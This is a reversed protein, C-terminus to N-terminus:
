SLCTFHFYHFYAEASRLPLPLIQSNMLVLGAQLPGSAITYTKNLSHWAGTGEQWAGSFVSGSHQLRLTVTPSSTLPRTGLDHFNTKSNPGNYYVFNVGDPLYKWASIELRLFQNPSQWILIAAGQFTGSQQAFDVQTEISFNGDVAQLIRPANLNNFPNLDEDATGPSYLHLSHSANNFDYISVNSPDQWIWGSFDSQQFRDSFGKCLGLHMGFITITPELFVVILSAILVLSVVIGGLLAWKSKPRGAQQPFDSSHPSVASLNVGNSPNNVPMVAGGILPDSHTEKEKQRVEQVFLNNPVGAIPPKIQGENSSLTPLKPEKYAQELANAFARISAFRQQPEKALAILIVEEIGPLLTPLTQRLPPPPVFLHQSAIESFSGRFPYSGSLWEYVIIALSYQDSARRPQGKLQEPAMYAATGAVDQMNTMRSSQSITAIGFDSLLIDNHLGILLNEPKVDRHIVKEDHAYQLAEAIQKTYNVVVDLPLRAGIPHLRRLTGKSAYDEVLFPIDNEVNFDFVRVIHPHNLRAIIRAEALFQDVNEDILRTHLVKIAARNHLRIHEGLYVTAFAGQGLFDTLLYNGLKQGILSSM